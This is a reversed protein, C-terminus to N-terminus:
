RRRCWGDDRAHRRHRPNGTRRECRALERGRHADPGADTPRAPRQDAVRGRLGDHHGRHDPEGGEDTPVQGAVEDQGVYGNDVYGAPERITGYADLTVQSASREAGSLLVRGGTSGAVGYLRVDNGVLHVLDAAQVVGEGLAGVPGQVFATKGARRADGGAAHVKVVGGALVNTQTGTFAIYDAADVRGLVTVPGASSVATVERTDATLTGDMDSLGRPERGLGRGARRPRCWRCRMLLLRRPRLEAPRRDHDRGRQVHRQRRAVTRRALEVHDDFRCRDAGARAYQRGHPVAGGPWSRAPRSPGCIPGPRSRPGAAGRGASIVGGEMNRFSGLADIRIHSGDGLAEIMLAQKVSGTADIDILSGPNLTQIASGTQSNVSNPVAADPQLPNVGTSNWVNLWVLDDAKLWGGIVAQEDVTLTLSQAYLGSDPLGTPDQVNIANVELM